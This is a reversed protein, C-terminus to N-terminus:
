QASGLAGRVMLRLERLADLGGGIEAANMQCIADFRRSIVGRAEHGDQLAGLTVLKLELLTDTGPSAEVEDFKRFVLDQTTLNAAQVPAPPVEAVPLQSTVKQEIDMMNKVTLESKMFDFAADALRGSETCAAYLKEMDDVAALVDVENPVGGIVTNYLVCTVTVHEHSNRVPKLVPIGKHKGYLDGRSVRAASARGKRPPVAVIRARTRAGAISKKKKAYPMSCPPPPALVEEEDGLCEDEVASAGTAVSEDEGEEESSDDFVEPGTSMDAPESPMSPAAPCPKPPTANMCSTGLAMPVTSGYGAPLLPEAAAAACQNMIQLSAALSGPAGGGGFEMDLGGLCTRQEQRTEQLELPVQITMQLM